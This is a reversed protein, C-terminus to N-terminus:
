WGGTRKVVGAANRGLAISGTGAIVAVGVANDLAGLLLEADNTLQVQEALDVVKPYIAEVDQPRDVGAMGLWAKRVSLGSTDHSAAQMAEAVARHISAVAQATGVISQNSCDSLGRGLERGQGNVIVALTKSGGGDVGLYGSQPTTDDSFSTM